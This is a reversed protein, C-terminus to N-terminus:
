RTGAEVAKLISGDRFSGFDRIPRSGDWGVSSQYVGTFIAELPETAEIVEIFFPLEGHTDLYANRNPLDTESYFAIEYGLAEYAKMQADYDRVAIGQHHLGYGRQTIVETFVSPADNAQHILEIMMHGANGAALSGTFEAPKGRYTAHKIQVSEMHFWPGVHLTKTFREMALHIDEVIYAIQCIAGDPQGFKFQPMPDCEHPQRILNSRVSSLERPPSPYDRRGTKYAAFPLLPPCSHEAFARGLHGAGLYFMM